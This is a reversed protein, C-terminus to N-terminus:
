AHSDDEEEIDETGDYPVLDDEEEETPKDQAGPSTLPKYDSGEYPVPMPAGPAKNKEKEKLEYFDNLQEITPKATKEKLIQEDEKTIEKEKETKKGIGYIENIQQITLKGEYHISLIQEDEKTIGLAQNIQELTLKVPSEDSDTKYGLRALSTLHEHIVVILTRISDNVEKNGQAESLSKLAKNLALNFASDFKKLILTVDGPKSDSMILRLDKGICVDSVGYKKGLERKNLNLIGVSDLYEKLEARRENASLRKAM